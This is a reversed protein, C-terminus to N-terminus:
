KNAMQIFEIILAQEKKSLVDMDIAFIEVISKIFLASLVYLHCLAGAMDYNHQAELRLSNHSSHAYMSLAHYELVGYNKSMPTGELLDNWSLRGNQGVRWQGALIANKSDQSLAKYISSNILQERLVRTKENVDNVQEPSITEQGNIKITIDITRKNDQRGSYEYCKYKFEIEEERTAGSFTGSNSIFSLTLYLEHCSRILVYISKIDIYSCEPLFFYKTGRSLSYITNYQKFFIKFIGYKDEDVDAKVRPDKELYRHLKELAGFMIEPVDKNDISNILQIYENKTLPM